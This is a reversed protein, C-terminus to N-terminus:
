LARQIVYLIVATAMVMLGPKLVYQYSELFGARYYDKSVLFCLHVPSLIMGIYGFVYALGATSLFDILDPSRFMPIIIPFAAGVFGVAIGTILGSLFPMILIILMAPIHYATLENRIQIVAQSDEMMGKFIMVALILFVMSWTGKGIIVSLLRKASVRNIRWVWVIAIALGPLLSLGSHVDIRIGLIEIVRLLAPLLFIFLIVLLIPMMEWIFKWLGGWSFSGQEQAEIKGIPKLIFFMGSLVSVPTMIAMMAIFHWTKVEMLAVVLIVGPYLPWWYEWVHRFWYNLATKQERAVGDKKLSAEVMPASFLAGGPMPLLGILAAMVSGVTRGDRSLIALGKVMRDMQGSKDMLGSLIMILGVILGLSITQMETVTGILSWGVGGLGLGMWMGLILAGTIISLGLNLKMRNIILIIGFIIFVKILAPIM